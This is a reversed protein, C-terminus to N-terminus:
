SKQNVEKSLKQWADLISESLEGKIIADKVACDPETDHRCDRFKCHRSFQDIQAFQEQLVSEDDLVLGFERTGPTDIVIVGNELLFLKRSTTTHKGKGSYTSIARTKQQREEDLMTNIISSKGVGSSGIFVVTEGPTLMNQIEDLGHGSVFSSYIVPINEDIGRMVKEFENTDEVLDLKNLVIIPKIGTDALQLLNRELRRVSFDQALSQVIVARDVNSAIIQVNDQGGIKKRKLITKRLLIERIINGNNAEGREILVWDGVIPKQYPNKDKLRNGTIEC